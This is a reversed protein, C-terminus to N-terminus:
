KEEIDEGQKDRRGKRCGRAEGSERERERRLAVKEVVRFQTLSVVSQELAKGLVVHDEQRRQFGGDEEVNEGGDGLTEGGDLRHRRRAAAGGEVVDDGVEELLERLVIFLRRRVASRRHNVGAFALGFGEDLDQLSM